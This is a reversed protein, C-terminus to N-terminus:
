GRVKSEPMGVVVTRKRPLEEDPIEATFQM